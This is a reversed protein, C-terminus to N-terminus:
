EFDIVMSAEPAICCLYEIDYWTMSVQIYLQNKPSYLYEQYPRDQVRIGSSNLITPSIMPSEIPSEISVGYMVFKDPFSEFLHGIVLINRLGSM